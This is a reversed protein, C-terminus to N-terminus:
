SLGVTLDCVNSGIGRNFFRIVMGGQDRVSLVQNQGPGLSLQRGTAALTSETISYELVCRKNGKNEFTVDGPGPIKFEFSKGVTFDVRGQCPNDKQVECGFEGQPPRQAVPQAQTAPVSLLGMILVLPALTLRSM